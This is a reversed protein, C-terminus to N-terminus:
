VVGVHTSGNCHTPSITPTLTYYTRAPRHFQAHPHFVDAKTDVGAQCHLNPCFQKRTSRFLPEFVSYRHRRKMYIPQTPVGNCSSILECTISAKTAFCFNFTPWIFYNIINFKAMNSAPWRSTTIRSGQPRRLPFARTNDDGWTKVFVLLFFHHFKRHPTTRYVGNHFNQSLFRKLRWPISNADRCLIIWSGGVICWTLIRLISAQFINDIVWIFIRLMVAHVRPVFILTRHYWSALGMGLNSKQKRGLERQWICHYQARFSHEIPSLATAPRPQDHNIETSDLGYRM